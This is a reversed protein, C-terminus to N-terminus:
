KSAIVHQQISYPCGYDEFSASGITHDFSHALTHALTHLGVASVSPQYLSYMLYGM